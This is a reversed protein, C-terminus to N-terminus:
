PRDEETAQAPELWHDYIEVDLVDHEPGDYAPWVDVQRFRVRYLERRPEGQFGYAREEPNLFAGCDREVVGVRGRVYEPTRRHGPPHAELVRVRQGATFRGAGAFRIGSAASPRNM